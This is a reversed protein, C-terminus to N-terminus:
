STLCAVTADCEEDSALATEPGADLETLTGASVDLICGRVVVGAPIWPHSRVRQIQQRLSQRLDRFAHFCTPTAATKGTVRTLHERLWDDQFTLLGCETHQIVLVGATGLLQESIILSRLVDETVIGGANRLIHAEGPHLGLLEEVQIRCDMCTVVVLRRSPQAPLAAGRPTASRRHAELVEDICGRLPPPQKVRVRWCRILCIGVRIALVLVVGLFFLEFTM